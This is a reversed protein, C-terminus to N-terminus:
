SGSFLSLAQIFPISLFIVGPVLTAVTVPVWVKQARSEMIEVLERQVDRRLARAETSLLRGLDGADRNLALVPILRDLAPVRVVAAWERLADIESLGHQIRATVTELDRAIAGSSREALRTLASGLSFGASLLMALQESVVPLELFIHRQWRTSEDTLRQEVLLFALLPAGLLVGAAMPGPLGSLGAFLAGAAMAAISVGMQRIRFTSPDLPSHIRELRLALEDRGGFAQAIRHGVSQALPGILDNMTDHRTQTGPALGGPSYPSLREGLPLRSFWRVQSLLLTLGAWMAAGSLLVLRM